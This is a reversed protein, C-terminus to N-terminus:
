PSSSSALHSRALNEFDKALRRCRGLWGFTREVIWHKPLVVFCKVKDPRKVVELPVRAANKVAAATGAGQYSSRNLMFGVWYRPVTCSPREPNGHPIQESQNGSPILRNPACRM